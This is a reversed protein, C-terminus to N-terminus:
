LVDFVRKTAKETINIAGTNAARVYGRLSSSDSLSLKCLRNSRAQTRELPAYKRNGSLSYTCINRQIAIAVLVLSDVFNSIRLDNIRSNV